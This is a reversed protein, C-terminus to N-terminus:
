EGKYSNYRKCRIQCRLGEGLMIRLVTKESVALGEKAKLMMTIQRYGMGNSTRSFIKHILPHMDKWVNPKSNKSSAYRCYTNKSIKLKDLM